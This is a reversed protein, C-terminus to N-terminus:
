QLERMAAKGFCFLRVKEVCHFVEYSQLGIAQRLVSLFFFMEATLWIGSTKKKLKLAM